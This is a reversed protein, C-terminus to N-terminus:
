FEVRVHPIVGSYIAKTITKALPDDVGLAIISEKVEALVKTKHAIDRERAAVEAERRKAEAEIRAREAEAAEKAKRDAEARLREEREAAQRAAEVRAREATEAAEKAKRIQEQAAKAAREAADREAQAKREAELRAAEAKKEAEIRAREAAEAAIREEREKRERAEAEARLRALEAQEEERKIEAALSSRLIETVREKERSFRTAFEQWDREPYATLFELRREIENRDAGHPINGLEAIVAIADEHAQIRDKERQEYETVPCRIEDKLADLRERIMRREENVADIQVRWQETLSKGMADLATKSRAVKHALSILASRGSPTSADYHAAENKAKTEIDSVLNKAADPAFVDVAQLPLSVILDTGSM